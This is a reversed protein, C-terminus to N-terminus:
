AAIALDGAETWPEVMKPSPRCHKLMKTVAVIGRGYAGMKM